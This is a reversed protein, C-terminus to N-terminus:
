EFLHFDNVLSVPLAFGLTKSHIVINTLYCLNGVSFFSCFGKALMQVMLIRMKEANLMSMDKWVPCLNPSSVQIPHFTQGLSYFFIM